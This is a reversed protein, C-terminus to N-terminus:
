EHLREYARAYGAIDVLSDTHGPTHKLRSLKVCIMALAVDEETFEFGFLATWMGAIRRFNARPDDYNDSRQEVVRAAEDLITV